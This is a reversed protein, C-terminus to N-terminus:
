VDASVHLQNQIATATNLSFINNTHRGFGSLKFRTIAKPFLTFFLGSGSRQNVPIVETNKQPRLHENPTVKPRGLSTHCM